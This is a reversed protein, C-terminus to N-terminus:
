YYVFEPKERKGLIWEYLQVIKQAVSDISYKEEVLKRGNLGMTIREEDNLSMAETLATALPEIGIDIWWGANYTILEEWPTGKTTIVPLGCALAELVAIPFGESYSPLVFLESNQFEFIKEQDFKSGVLKIEKGLNLSDILRQITKLYNMEGTGIIRLNWNKRLDSPIINWANILNDLGKIKHIRSLFLINKKDTNKNYLNPKLKLTNIGNSIVAIPNYLKLKRINKLETQSLAHICNARKLDNYQYLTLATKKKINKHSLAWPELMGHPSIIYPKKNKIAQQVMMHIPYEWIGNGHYIDFYSKKLLKKLEKSFSMIYPFSKNCFNISINRDLNIPNDSGLTLLSVEAFKSLENLTLEVFTSTGGANKDISSIVQCVKIM